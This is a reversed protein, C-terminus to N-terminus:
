SSGEPNVCDYNYVSVRMFVCQSSFLAFFIRHRQKLYCFLEIQM